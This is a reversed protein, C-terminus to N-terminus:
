ATPLQWVHPGPIDACPPSCWCRFLATLTSFDLQALSPGGHVLALSVGCAQWAVDNVSTYRAMLEQLLTDHRDTLGPQVCHWQVAIGISVM